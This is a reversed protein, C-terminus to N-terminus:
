ISRWRSLPPSSDRGPLRPRLLLLAPGGFQEGGDGAGDVVGVLAADEVAVELRPIDKERNAALRLRARSSASPQAERSVAASVGYM